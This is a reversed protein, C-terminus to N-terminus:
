DHFLYSASIESGFLDIGHLTLHLFALVLFMGSPSQSLAALITLLSILEMLIIYVMFQTYLLGADV